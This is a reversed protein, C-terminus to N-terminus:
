LGCSLTKKWGSEVKVPGGDLEKKMEEAKISVVMTFKLSNM